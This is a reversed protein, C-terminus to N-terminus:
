QTSRGSASRSTTSEVNFYKTMPHQVSGSLIANARLLQKTAQQPDLIFQRRMYDAFLDRTFVTAAPVGVAANTAAAATAAGAAAVSPRDQTKVPSKSGISAHMRGHELHRYYRRMLVGRMHVYEANNKEEESAGEYQWRQLMANTTPSLGSAPASASSLHAFTRVYESSEEDDKGSEVLERMKSDNKGRVVRNVAAEAAALQILRDKDLSDFFAFEAPTLYGKSGSDLRDFLTRILVCWEPRLRLLETTRSNSSSSSSSNSGSTNAPSHSATTNDAAADEFVQASINQQAPTCGILSQFAPLDLRLRMWQLWEYAQTKIKEVRDRVRAADSSLPPDLRKRLQSDPQLPSKMSNQLLGMCNGLAHIAIPVLLTQTRFYAWCLVAGSAATAIVKDSLDSAHAVGFTAGGLIISVRAGFVRILRAFIIGRFVLEEGIPALIGIDFLPVPSHACTMSVAVLLPEESQGGSCVFSAAGALVLGLVLGKFIFKVNHWGRQLPTLSSLDFIRGGVRQRIPTATTAAPPIPILHWKHMYYGAVAYCAWGGGMAATTGLLIGTLTDAKAATAATIFTAAVAAAGTVAVSFPALEFFLMHLRGTPSVGPVPSLLLMDRWSRITSDVTAPFKLIHSLVPPPSPPPPPSAPTTTTPPTFSPASSLSSSTAAATSSAATSAKRASSSSSSSTAFFAATTTAAASTSSQQQQRQQMSAARILLSPFCLRAPCVSRKTTLLPSARMVASAYMRASIPLSISPSHTVAAASSTSCSSPSHPLCCTVAATAATAATPVARQFLHCRHLSLMRKLSM